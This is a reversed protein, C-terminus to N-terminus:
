LFIVTELFVRRSAAVLNSGEKKKLGVNEYKKM